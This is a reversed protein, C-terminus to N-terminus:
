PPCFEEPQLDWPVEEWAMRPPHRLLVGLSPSEPVVQGARIVDGTWFFAVDAGVGSGGTIGQWYSKEAVNRVFYGPPADQPSLVLSATKSSSCSHCVRYSVWTSELDDMGAHLIGRRVQGDDLSFVSYTGDIRPQARDGEVMRRMVLAGVAREETTEHTVLMTATNGDASLWGRLAVDNGYLLRLSGNIAGDNAVAICNDVGWFANYDTRFANQSGKPTRSARNDLFAAGSGWGSSLVCAGTDNTSPTLVTEGVVSLHEESNSTPSRSTVLWTLWRGSLADKPHGEGIRVGIALGENVEVPTAVLLSTDLSMAGYLRRGDFDIRVLGDPDRPVIQVGNFAKEVGGAANFELGAGTEETLDLTFRRWELLGSSLNSCGAPHLLAVLGWQSALGCSETVQTHVGCGAEDTCTAVQCPDDAGQCVTPQGAPVCAGSADCQSEPAFTGSDCRSDACRTGEPAQTGICGIGPQCMGVICRAPDDLTRCDLCADPTPCAGTPPSHQCLGDAGCWDESCANGDDCAPDSEYTCVARRECCLASGQLSCTFGEGCDADTFCAECQAGRQTPTPCAGLAFILLVLWKM